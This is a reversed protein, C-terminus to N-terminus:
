VQCAWGSFANRPNRKQVANAGTIILAKRRNKLHMNVPKVSVSQMFTDGGWRQLDSSLWIRPTAIVANCSDSNIASVNRAPLQVNQYPSVLEVRKNWM